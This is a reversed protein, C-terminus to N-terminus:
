RYIKKHYKFDVFLIFKEKKFYQFTLVFHKDIHVRKKYKQNYRLNKYHEIEKSDSNIIEKIKKELIKIKKPDKKKIKKIKNKLKKEFDFRYVLIKV